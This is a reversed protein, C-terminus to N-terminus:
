NRLVISVMRNDQLHFIGFHLTLLVVNRRPARSSVGNGRRPGNRSPAQLGQSTPQGGDAFGASCRQWFAGKVKAKTIVDGERVSGM